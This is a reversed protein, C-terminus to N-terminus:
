PPLFFDVEKGIILELLLEHGHFLHVVLMLVM